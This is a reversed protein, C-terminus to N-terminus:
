LSQVVDGLLSLVTQKRDLNYGDAIALREFLAAHLRSLRDARLHDGALASRRAQAAVYQGVHDAFFDFADERDKGALVEALRHIERRQGRAPKNLLQEFADVIELGGYNVLKIATAVSGASAAVVRDMQEPPVPLGLHAIAARMDADGLPRLLLTMCRSRITPLLRGPHHSLVLFITRRPPEELMKLIANAANRNLEDAVDIVIIRWNNNGTTQGLFKAIKRVEDVTIATKIKQTKDDVPRVLHVLNHSAGAAITRFEATDPDPAGIRAPATAPDPHALIHHAFRFALTAKGIGEPGELLIAHHIKGAAYTQGLLDEADQHGFLHTNEAPPVAGDLIRSVPESM